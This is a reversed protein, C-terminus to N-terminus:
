VLFAPKNWDMESDYHVLKPNLFTIVIKKKKYDLPQTQGYKLEFM